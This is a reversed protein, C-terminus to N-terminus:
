CGDEHPFLPRTLLTHPTGDFTWVSAGVGSRGTLLSRDIQEADVIVCRWGNFELEDMDAPTTELPWTEAVPLQPNVMESNVLVEFAPPEYPEGPPTTANELLDIMSALIAARPDSPTDFGLAYVALRHPGTEDFSTLVTTPADAVNTAENIDIREVDGLALDQEFTLLDAFDSDSLRKEFLPVARDDRAGAEFQHSVVTGDDFVVFRPVRTLSMEVPIFGGEDRIELIVGERGEPVDVDDDTADPSGCAALALALVLAITLGNMGIRRAPGGPPERM